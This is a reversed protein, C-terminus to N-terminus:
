SKSYSYTRTAGRRECAVTPLRESGRDGSTLAELLNWQDWALYNRRSTETYMRGSWWEPDDGALFEHNPLLIGRINPYKRLLADANLVAFPGFLGVAVTPIQSTLADINPGLRSSDQFNPKYLVLQPRFSFLVNLDHAECTVELQHIEVLFGKDRLYATVYGATLSASSQSSLTRYYAVSVRVITM